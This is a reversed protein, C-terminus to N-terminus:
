IQNRQRLPLLNQPGPIVAVNQFAAAQWAMAWSLRKLKPYLRSPSPPHEAAKTLLALMWGGEAVVDIRSRRLVAASWFALSDHGAM